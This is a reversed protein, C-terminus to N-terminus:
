NRTLSVKDGVGIGHKEFYGRNVELAATFPVRAEYYPCSQPYPSPCPEMDRITGITNDSMIFAISLPVYTQYMWFVNSAAQETEFLFIMGSDAALSERRMLGLQRQADSEAIEVGLTVAETPTQLQVTGHAFEMVPVFLSGSTESTNKNECAAFVLPLLCITLRSLSPTKV